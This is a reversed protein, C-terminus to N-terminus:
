RNKYKQRLTVKQVNNSIPHQAVYGRLRAPAAIQAEQKDIGFKYCLIKSLNYLLSLCLM